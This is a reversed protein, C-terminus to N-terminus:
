CVTTTPDVIDFITSYPNEEVNNTQSILLPIFVNYCIMQTFWVMLENWLKCHGVVDKLTPVYFVNLYLMMNWFLDSVLQFAVVVVVVVVKNFWIIITLPHGVGCIALFFALRPPALWICSCM